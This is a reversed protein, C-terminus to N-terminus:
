HEINEALADYAIDFTPLIQTGASRKQLADDCSMIIGYSEYQYYIPQSCANALRKEFKTRPWRLGVTKVKRSADL